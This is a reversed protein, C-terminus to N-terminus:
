EISKRGHLAFIKPRAPLRVRKARLCGDRQESWGGGEGAECTAAPADAEDCGPAVESEIACGDCCAAVRQAKLRMLLARSRKALFVM